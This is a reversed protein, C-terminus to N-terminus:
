LLVLMSPPSNTKKKRLFLLSLAIFLLIKQLFFSIDVSISSCWKLLICLDVLRCFGEFHFSRSLNQIQVSNSTTARKNLYSRWLNEKVESLEIKIVLTVIKTAYKFKAAEPFLFYVANLRRRTLPGYPLWTFVLWVVSGYIIFSYIQEMQVFICIWQTTYVHINVSLLLFIVLGIIFLKGRRFELIFVFYIFWSMYAIDDSLAPFVWAFVYKKSFTGFGKQLLALISLMRKNSKKKRLFLMWPAIFLIEKLCVWIRESISSKLKWIKKYHLFRQTNSVWLLSHPVSIKYQFQTQHQNINNNSAFAVAVASNDNNRKKTLNSTWVNEKDESIMTWIARLIRAEFVLVLCFYYLAFM